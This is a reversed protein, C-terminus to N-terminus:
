LVATLEARDNTQSLGPLPGASIPEETTANVCGWAALNYGVKMQEASGDTFVHNRGSAPASWFERTMDPIALLARKWPAACPSRSQLLHEKLAM